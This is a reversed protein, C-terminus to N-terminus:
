RTQDVPRHDSDPDVQAIQVDSVSVGRAELRRRMLELARELEPTSKQHSALQLSLGGDALRMVGFGALTMAKDTFQVSMGKAADAQAALWAKEMMMAMAEVDGTFGAGAIPAGQLGNLATQAALGTLGEAKDGRDEKLLPDDQRRDDTRERTPEVEDDRRALKPQREGAELAHRRAAAQDLAAEFSGASWASPAPTSARQPSPARAPTNNTVADAM